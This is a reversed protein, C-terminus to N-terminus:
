ECAFLFVCVCLKPLKQYSLKGTNTKTVSKTVVHPQLAGTPSLVNMNEELPSKTIKIEQKTEYIFFFFYFFETPKVCLFLALIM